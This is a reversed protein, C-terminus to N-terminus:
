PPPLCSATSFRPRTFAESLFITERHESRVQSILWEWFPLPKTHPNDVRFIRVGRGIWFDIVSKLEYWLSQWQECDFSLPYIDEYKKPPNEAYKITGDPRHRFWEPHERVYPHDPSCQFAIDLAVDLGHNRATEVLHEFDDMTGLDPHVAKHGGAESGIAWPSGPDTGGVALSNNRGKRNTHGIPHIPPLYLVDFGMRAIEPVMNELDRFTGSRDPDMTISRPFIEYWASFLALKSEVVVSLAPTYTTQRSRDPYRDMMASIDDGVARSVVHERGEDGRLIEAVGTLWEDDPPQARAAAAEIMAAGELLESKVEQGAEFKKILDRQWTSFHDVWAKITYTYTGLEHVAFRTKWQDEAVYNMPLEHWDGDEHRYALLAKLLDHGDAFVNANVHVKEGLTRKIPFIGCDISPRVNDIWVRSAKEEPLPQLNQLQSM